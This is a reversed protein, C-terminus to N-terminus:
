PRRASCAAVRCRYPHYPRFCGSVGEEEPLRVDNDVRCLPSDVSCISVLKSADPDRTLSTAPVLQASVAGDFRLDFLRQLGDLLSSYHAELAANFTPSEVYYGGFGRQQAGLYARVLDRRNYM